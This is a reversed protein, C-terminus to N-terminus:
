AAARSSGNPHIGLGQVADILDTTAFPKALFTAAGMRAAWEDGHDSATMVILPIRMGRRKLRRSLEYGDLRPMGLDLVLAVPRNQELKRLADLGYAATDVLYGAMRLATATADLLIDDDDAVLIRGEWV